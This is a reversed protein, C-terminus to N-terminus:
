RAPSGSGRALLAEPLEGSVVLAREAGGVLYTPTARVGDRAGAEVDRALARDTEPSALCAQFRTEDLGLGRALEAPPVRARQTAFLADDMAEFRGQEGACIAARALDCAGPHIARKVAPNCSPDLPYHRRVLKWEPYRALLEKTKVHARACFPCDYDSYEVVGGPGPNEAGAPAPIGLPAAAQPGAPSGAAGAEAAPRREWYRPYGAVAVGTAALGFLAVAATRYPMARVARLDARIASALGAPRCAVVAAALLGASTAWGAACLLCWAGILTKSVVALALSVAVAAAAVLFLLGRPFGAHPRRGGLGRGALVAAIGFGLVGWAAVPLGLFVSYPSTAVRDCNLTESIACFSTAGAHAGAHLRALEVSLAVGGLGLVLAALLPGRRPPPPTRTDPRRAM